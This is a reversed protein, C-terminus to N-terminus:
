KSECAIGDRDRDLHKSYGLQGKKINKYGRAKAEKCNKFHLTESFVNATVFALTFIVLLKKM